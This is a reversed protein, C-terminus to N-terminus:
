ARVVRLDGSITRARLEVLPGDDGGAVASDGLEIESELDGSVANADVALRSGRKIGVRIDGSIAEIEIEGAEVSELEVDGSITKAKVPGAAERVTLDGSVCQFRLAGSTRELTTDGSVTQVTLRGGVTGVRLDGSVTEFTAEGDIEGWEIDGSTTSATAAAYRGSGEIDASRSKIAVTSGRPCRVRLEVEVRRGFSVGLVRLESVDAVLEGGRLAIRADDVAQRSADSANLPELFVETEVTDTAEVRVRGAPVELKLRIPQPTDYRESRMM